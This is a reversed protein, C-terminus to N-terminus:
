NTPTIAAQAPTSAIRISAASTSQNVQFPGLQDVSGSLAVELIYVLMADLPLLVSDNTAERSDVVKSAILESNLRLGGDRKEGVS